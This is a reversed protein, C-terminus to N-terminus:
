RPNSGREWFWSELSANDKLIVQQYTLSCTAKYQDIWKNDELESLRQM